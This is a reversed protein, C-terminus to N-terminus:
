PEPGDGRARPLGGPSAPPAARALDMGALAPFGGRRRGGAGHQRTWGRSRPSASMSSGRRALSCPGDGRARPLGVQAVADGGRKLDMGALAPFGDSDDPRPLVEPTWGRSRPSARRFTVRYHPDRPGDGRARPLGRGGSLDQSRIPDMGALAPFGHRDLGDLRHHRTWGRSRPSARVTIATFRVTSPGDGRARPLGAFCTPPTLLALDMGALAPFGRRASGAGGPRLTWGRSRPSAAYALFTARATEPGDGRARPLRTPAFPRRPPSLDMGALAPFGGSSPSPARRDRTWGRSRPSAPVFPLPTSMAVPGDGRARPLGPTSGGCARVAPDMGALAPFGPGRRGSGPSTSTWGRSRPSAEWSRSCLWPGDPDMGALAPFGGHPRVRLPHLRTWGRSRPSAPAQGGPVVRPSPGDGRARPLGDDPDVGGIGDPDM